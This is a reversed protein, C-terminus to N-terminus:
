LLPDLGGSSNTPSLDVRKERQTKLHDSYFLVLGNGISLKSIFTM